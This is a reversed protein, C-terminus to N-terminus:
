PQRRWDAVQMASVPVGWGHKDEARLSSFRPAAPLRIGSRAAVVEINRLRALSLSLDLAGFLSDYVINVVDALLAALDAAPAAREQCALAIRTPLSEEAEAAELADSDFDYWARFTDPEVTPWQWMHELVDSVAKDALAHARLWAEVTLLGAALRAQVNLTEYEDARTMAHDHRVPELNL